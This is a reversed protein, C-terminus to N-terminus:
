NNELGVAIGGSFPTACGNTVNGQYKDDSGLQLGTSCGGIYNQIFANGGDSIVGSIWDLLQNNKVEVGSCGSVDIGTGTGPGVVFCDLVTCGHSGQLNIAARNNSFSVNQIICGSPVNLIAIGFQFGSITGNQIILNNNRNSSEVGRGSGAPSAKLTFGNFNIVVNSAAVTIAKGGGSSAFTLGSTLIYTGPQTITFPVSDITQAYGSIAAISLTMVQLFRSTFYTNM